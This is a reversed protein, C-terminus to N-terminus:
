YQGKGDYFSFLFDAVYIVGFAGLLVLIPQKFRGGLYKWSLGFIAAALTLNIFDGIAYSFDFFITWFPQKFYSNGGRAVVVLVYYSFVLMILILLSVSLKAKVSRIGYRAGTARTLKFIGYAWLPISSSYIVDLIHTPPVQQAPDKIVYYTWGAQGFGWMILGLSIFFTSQGVGSKLWSWGRATLMGLYGYYM